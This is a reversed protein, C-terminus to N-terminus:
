YPQMQMLFESTNSRCSSSVEEGEEVDETQQQKPLLAAPGAVPLAGAGVFGPQLLQAAVCNSLQLGLHQAHQLVPICAAPAAAAEAGPTAEQMCRKALVSAISTMRTTQAMAAEAANLAALAAASGPTAICAENFHQLTAELASNAMTIALQLM